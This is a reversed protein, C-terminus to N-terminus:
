FEKSFENERLIKIEKSEKYRVMAWEAYWPTKRNDGATVDSNIVM